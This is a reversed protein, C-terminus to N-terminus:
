SMGHAKFWALAKDWAEKAAKEDYMPRYDAHFGHDANDYVVIESGSKGKKLEARMKEVTDLPIGKDKGGYLGLVPVTQKAAGEVPFIKVNATPEGVLKGYWAVGAKLKPNHQSYVWTVSGGWCFGTIGIKSADAAKQDNLWKVTADLDSIVEAQVVKDIIESRLKPIDEIKTADGQRFYLYPAVAYFGANAFRRVVDKIYEHVGFIEHIVIVVPYKGAKKPRAVYAPMELKGVNIKVDQVELDTAPTTVAWATVPSVALAYGAATTCFGRRSITALGETQM